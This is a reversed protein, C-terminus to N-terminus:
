NINQRYCFSMLEGISWVHDTLGMRMAPTVPEHKGDNERRRLSLSSHPMCLNYNAKLLELSAQVAKRSRGFTVTRRRARSSLLRITLNRREIASTNMLDDPVHGYVDYRRVKRLRRGERTKEVIAYNLRDSPVLRDAGPRGRGRNGIVYMGYRELLVTRYPKCGDTMFYPVHDVALKDLEGNVVREAVDHGRGDAVIGLLYKEVSCFSTWIWDGDERFHDGVFIM